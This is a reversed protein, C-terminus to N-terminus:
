EDGLHIESLFDTLHTLDIDRSFRKRFLQLCSERGTFDARNDVLNVDFQHIFNLTDRYFFATEANWQKNPSIHNM